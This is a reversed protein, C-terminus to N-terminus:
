RTRRTFHCRYVLNANSNSGIPGALLEDLQPPTSLVPAPCLNVNSTCINNMQNAFTACKIKLPQVTSKCIHHMQNVFTTFSIQLRLNLMPIFLDSSHSASPKWSKHCLRCDGNSASRDTAMPPPDIQTVQLPENLWALPTHGYLILDCFEALLLCLLLASILRQLCCAFYCLLSWGKCAAPLSAFYLDAMALLLCLLLTFILRQLRCVFICLLSWGKCAASLSAFYLDARIMHDYSWITMHDYSWIMM